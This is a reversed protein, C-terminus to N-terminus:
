INANLKKKSITSILVYDIMKLNFVYSTIAELYKINNKKCIQHIKKKYNLIEIKKPHKSIDNILGGQLFISRAVIIKKKKKKIKKQIYIVILM